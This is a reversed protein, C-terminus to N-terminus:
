LLAVHDAIFRAGVLANGARHSAPALDAFRRQLADPSRPAYMEMAAELIQQPTNDISTYGRLDFARENHTSKMHEDAMTAAFGLTRGHRMLPRPLFRSTPGLPPAGFLFTYNTILAPRGFLLPMFMPGSNTGIFFRCRASLYVDLAAARAPSHAYDIVRDMPPLPTMTPDGLRVLWDGRATVARIAPLYDAIRFARQRHGADGHYGSERVHLCVFPADEPLGISRARIHGAAIQADDLCLLPQEGHRARWLAEIVNCAERAFVADQGPWSLLDFNRLGTGCVRPALLAVRDPDTEIAIEGAYQRLLAANAVAGARAVVVIRDWAALGLKKLKVPYQILGIHGINRTWEEGLLLDGSMDHRRQWAAQLGMKHRLVNLATAFDGDINVLDEALMTTAEIPLGDAAADNRDIQELLLATPRPRGPPSTTAQSAYHRLLRVYGPLAAEVDGRRAAAREAALPAHPNIAPDPKDRSPWLGALWGLM